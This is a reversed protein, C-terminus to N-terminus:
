FTWIDTGNDICFHPLDDTATVRIEPVGKVLTGIATGVSENREATVGSETVGTASGILSVTSIGNGKFEDMAPVSMDDKGNCFFETREKEFIPRKEIDEKLRGCLDKGVPEVTLVM